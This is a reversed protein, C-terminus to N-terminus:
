LVVFGNLLNEMEPLFEDLLNQTTYSVLQVSGKEYSFYYGFYSFKIGEMIGDLQMCYVKQGNVTRYEEKVLVVEPSVKRANEFAIRKLSELPIEIRETILLCYAEKQKM